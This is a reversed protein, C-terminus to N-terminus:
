VKQMAKAFKPDVAAKNCAALFADKEGAEDPNQWLRRINESSLPDIITRYKERRVEDYRDLISDGALGENICYFCDYLNGIDM